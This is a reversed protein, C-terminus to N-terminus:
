LNCNNYITIQSNEVCLSQYCIQSTNNNLCNYITATIGNPYYMDRTTFYTIVNSGGVLLLVGVYKLCTLCRSGATEEYRYDMAFVSTNFVIVITLFLWLFRKM